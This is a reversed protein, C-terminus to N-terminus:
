GSFVPILNRECHRRTAKSTCQRKFLISFIFWVTVPNALHASPVKVTQVADLKSTLCRPELSNQAMILEPIINGCSSLGASHNQGVGDPQRRRALGSSVSTGDLGHNQRQLAPRLKYRIVESCVDKMDKSLDLWTLLDLCSHPM